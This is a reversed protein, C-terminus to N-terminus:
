GLARMKATTEAFRGARDYHAYINMTLTSSSHGLMYQVEKPSFGQEIWRTACTHRLLHPHVHFDLSKVLWPANKPSTGLQTPDDATRDEIVRWVSRFSSRSMPGGNAAPAVYLSETESRANLLASEVWSAMPIDRVAADSKMDASVHAANEHLTNTRCVHVFHQDFHIDSWMLALAEERRLGLGLMLVVPVYARTDEVAALLRDSQEETLPVKEEAKDGKAKMTMPVPSKMILGNDVAAAFIARTTALAKSQSRYSYNSIRAMMASIHLPKIDRVRMAALSPMILNNVTHLLDKLGGESLGPRRYTDLWLQAFEGFTTDDGIDVGAHLEVKLKTIKKELDEKTKARVYKRTGDPLTITRTFLKEKSKEKAM